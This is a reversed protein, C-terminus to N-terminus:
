KIGLDLYEKICRLFWDQMTNQRAWPIVQNPTRERVYATLFCLCAFLWGFAPPSCKLSANGFQRFNVKNNTHPQLFQLANRLELQPITSLIYLALFSYPSLKWAYAPFIFIWFILCSPLGEPLAAPNATFMIIPVFAVSVVKKCRASKFSKYYRLRISNNISGTTYFSVILRSYEVQLHLLCCQMILSFFVLTM